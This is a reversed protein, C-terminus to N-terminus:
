RVPPRYTLLAAMERDLSERAASGLDFMAREFEAKKRLDEPTPLWPHVDGRTAAEALFEDVPMTTGYDAATKPSTLADYLKARITM